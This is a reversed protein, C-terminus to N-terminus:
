KTGVVDSDDKHWCLRYFQCQFAGNRCGSLNKYYVGLKIGNAAEDFSSLVLDEAAESVDNIITDIWAEPSCKTLWEGDCRVFGEVEKGRKVVIGAHEQDCTKSRGSSGDFGCKSCIKTKNKLMGKNLVIFGVKDIKYEEKLAHYYVILQQSHSAQDDTYARASTKNDLLLISGDEWEAILDAIAVVIDGESNELQFKHQVALVKKIKPMIKTNYSNLMIYGKQRLSLWNAYNYYVIEGPHLNDFGKTTKKAKINNFVELYGGEINNQKLHEELKKVDNETLLDADFDTAAYVLIDSHSLETYKKNIFQFSWTKDFQQIAENLDRKLLLTNLSEDIASGFALASHFFKERLGSLYHLKYKHGCTSYM